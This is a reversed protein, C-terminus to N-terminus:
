GESAVARALAARADSRTRDDFPLGVETGASLFLLITEKVRRGTARELALGYLAMQSRYVEARARAAGEGEVHDTKYDVVVLGGDPEELVLDVRGEVLVPEEVLVFPLERLVRRSAAARAAILDHARRALAEIEEAEPGIGQARAEWGALELLEADGIPWGRELVAHV